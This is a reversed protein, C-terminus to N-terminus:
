NGKMYGLCSCLITRMGTFLICLKIVYTPLYRGLYNGRVGRCTVRYLITSLVDIICTYIGLFNYLYTICMFM